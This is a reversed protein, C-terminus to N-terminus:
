AVEDDDEDSSSLAVAAAAGGPLPPTPFPRATDAGGRALGPLSGDEPVAAAAAATDGGGREIKGRDEADEGSHDATRGNCCCDGRWCIGGGGGTRDMKGGGLDAALLPRLLCFAFRGAVAEIASGLSVPVLLLLPADSLLAARMAAAAAAAAAPAEVGAEVDAGAGASTPAGAPVSAPVLAVDGM